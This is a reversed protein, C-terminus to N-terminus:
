GNRTSRRSGPRRRPVSRVGARPSGADQVRARPHPVPAPPRMLMRSRARGSIRAKCGYEEARMSARPPIRKRLALSDGCGGNPKDIVIVRSDEVKAENLIDLSKDTSGDNVAIVEINEYDQTLISKLTNHLYKEANYAPIVVSVKEEM